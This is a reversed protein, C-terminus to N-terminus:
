QAGLLGWLAQKQKFQVPQWATPSSLVCEARFPAQACSGFGPSLSVPRCSPAHADRGHPVVALWAQRRVFTSRPPRPPDLPAPFWVDERDELVGGRPRLMLCVRLLPAISLLLGHSHADARGAPGPRPLFFLLLM